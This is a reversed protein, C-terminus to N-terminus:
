RVVILWNGDTTAVMIAVTTDGTIAAAMTAEMAESIVEMDLGTTITAGTTVTVSVSVLGVATAMRQRHTFLSIPRDMRIRPFRMPTDRHTRIFRCETHTDATLVAM